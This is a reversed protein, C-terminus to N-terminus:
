FLPTKGAELNATFYRGPRHFVPWGLGVKQLLVQSVTTSGPTYHPPFANGCREASAVNSSSKYKENWTRRTAGPTAYIFLHCTIAHINTVDVITYAYEVNRRITQM